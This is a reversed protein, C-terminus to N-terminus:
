SIYTTEEDQRRRKRLSEIFGQMQPQTMVERELQTGFAEAKKELDALDVDIGILQVIRRLIHYAAKPYIGGVYMPVAGWLSVVDLKRGRSLWLLESYVSTPGRYNTLELGVKKLEAMAKKNNTSSTIPTESDHSVDALYGGITYFRVVGVEEAMRLIAKTYKQWNLHPENGLLLVLDPGGDKNRWYFFENKPSVYSQVIGDKISVIPRQILYDHFMNLPIEAFKRADLKDALYKVTFTSAKGANGWGDLGIIMIANRLEVEEDIRLEEDM